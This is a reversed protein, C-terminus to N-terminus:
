NMNNGWKEVSCHQPHFHTVSPLDNIQQYLNDEKESMEINIEELKEAKPLYVINWYWRKCSIKKRYTLEACVISVHNRRLKSFSIEREKMVPEEYNIDYAYRWETASRHMPTFTTQNLDDIRAELGTESKFQQALRNLEHPKLLEKTLKTIGWDNSFTKNRHTLEARVLDIHKTRLKSYWIERQAFLTDEYGTMRQIRNLNKHQGSMARSLSEVEEQQRVSKFQKNRDALYACIKKRINGSHDLENVKNQIKITENIIFRMM